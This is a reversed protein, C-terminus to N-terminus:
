SQGGPSLPASPHLIDSFLRGRGELRSELGMLRLAHWSTVQNATLVPKGLRREMATLHVALRQGTCGVFVADAAPDDAQEVLQVMEQSPVVSHGRELRLSRSGVVEIGHAHFFAQFREDVDALYPSALAVRAVGLERLALIMATSTTTAPLGTADSIRRSIDVDGGPGRIFSVTTCYYAFCAPGHRMLRRAAEEIDGNEALAVGLDATNDRPPVYTAASVLEVEIPMFRRFEDVLAQAECDVWADDPYIAGLRRARDGM